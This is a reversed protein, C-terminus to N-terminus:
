LYVSGQSLASPAGRARLATPFMDEAFLVATNTEQAVLHLQYTDSAIFVVSVLLVHMNLESKQILGESSPQSTCTQCLVINPSFRSTACARNPEHNPSPWLM